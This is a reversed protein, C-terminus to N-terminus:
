SQTTCGKASIHTQRGALKTCYGTNTKSSFRGCSIVIPGSLFKIHQAVKRM